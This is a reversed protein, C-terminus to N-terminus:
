HAACCATDQGYATLPTNTTNTVLLYCWLNVSVIPLEASSMSIIHKRAFLIQCKM